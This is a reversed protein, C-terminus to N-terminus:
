DNRLWYFASLNLLVWISSLDISKQEMRSLRLLALAVEFSAPALLLIMLTDFLFFGYKSPTSLLILLLPKTLFVRAASACGALVFNQVRLRPSTLRSKVCILLPTSSSSSTSSGAESSTRGLGVCLDRIISIWGVSDAFYEVTCFASYLKNLGCIMRYFLVSKASVVPLLELSDPFLHWSIFSKEGYFM